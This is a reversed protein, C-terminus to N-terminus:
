AGRQEWTAEALLLDRAADAAHVAEGSGGRDPHVRTILVRHAALIQARDAGPALGLLARAQAPADARPLKHQMMRALKAFPPWRGTILRWAVVAIAALLLLKM